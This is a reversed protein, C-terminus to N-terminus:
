LKKEIKFINKSNIEFNITLIILLLGERNHITCLTKKRKL